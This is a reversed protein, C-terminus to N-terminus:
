PARSVQGLAREYYSLDLYKDAAPPKGGWMGEMEARIALVVNFGEISLRADPTMGSGSALLAQYTGEAVAPSLKFRGALLRIMEVRHAPDMAYRQGEIYAALYRELVGANAAAWKRMVFAGNAQYPGIMSFQTGLSKLGRERMSISFPPNVMGAVLAPNSAMANARSPTGGVAQVKYDRGEILGNNKLIKKAVLAYATNPADVALTKGRIDAIANIESRVMFENLGADGGSVIIVDAKAVEVLALANDVAAHAIEFRGAALGARQEESNPTNQIEIGLGRRAMFGQDIAVLLALNSSGPFVNVRLTVPPTPPASACGAGLAAIGFMAVVFPRRQM